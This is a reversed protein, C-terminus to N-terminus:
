SSRSVKRRLGHWKLTVTATASATTGCANSLLVWFSASANLSPTVYRPSTAGAIPHSTDGSSGSYWQYGAASTAVVQLTTGHGAWLTQSAPQAQIVPRTSLDFATAGVTVASLGCGNNARNPFCPNSSFTL